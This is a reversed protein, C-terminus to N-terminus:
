GRRKKLRDAGKRGILASAVGLMILAGFVGSVIYIPKDEYTYMPPGPENTTVKQVPIYIITTFESTSYVTDYTDNVQRTVNELTDYGTAVNGNTNLPYVYGYKNNWESLYIFSDISKNNFQYLLNKISVAMGGFITFSHWDATPAYSGRHESVSFWQAAAVDSDTYDAWGATKDLAISGVYDDTISTMIGSNSTVMALVAILGIIIVVRDERFSPMQVRTSKLRIVKRLSRVVAWIGVCLFGCLFISTFTFIRGYYFATSVNPVFYCIILFIGAAMGFFLYDKNISKFMDRDKIIWLVGIMTAVQSFLVLYKELNNFFSGYNILIYELADLQTLSMSGAGASGASISGSSIAQGLGVFPLVLGSGTSAYWFLFAGFMLAFLWITVLRTRFQDSFWSIVTRWLWRPYGHWDDKRHLWSSILHSLAQLAVVLFILLMVLFAIGYHSVLLGALFLIVLVMKKTRSMNLEVLVLLFAVLFIESIEQKGLQIMLAYFASYGMFLGAGLFAPGPGFQGEVIKYIGLPVIAFLLPYVIKLLEVTDIGTLNTLMPALTVISLATNASGGYVALNQSVNWWGNATTILAASYESFVDYGMIYNTIMTRHLLLAISMSLVIPAYNKTGSLVTLPVLCVLFITWFMMTYDGTANISSAAIVVAFPLAIALSWTCILRVDFMGTGAVPKYSRDRWYALAVLASTGALYTAFIPGATLPSGMTGTYHLMNLLLGMGMLYGIGIAWSFFLGTITSLGHYRGIRLIAVGPIILILPILALGAISTLVDSGTVTRYIGLIALLFLSALSLLLFRRMPWDSVFPWRVKEQNESM